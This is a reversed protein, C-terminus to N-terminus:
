GTVLAPLLAHVCTGAHSHSLEQGRQSTTEDPRTICFVAGRRWPSQNGEGTCLYVCRYVCSCERVQGDVQASMSCSAQQRDTDSRM